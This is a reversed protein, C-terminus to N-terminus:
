PRPDLIEDVDRALAAPDVSPLLRRRELLAEASLPAPAVPRLEAVPKGARTITIPHGSAALDIVEGGRSRLERITVHPVVGIYRM